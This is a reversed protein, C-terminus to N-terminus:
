LCYEFHGGHSETCAEFSRVMSLRMQEFITQRADVIRRHLAEENGVPAAYVLTQLHRWLYFDLPNV